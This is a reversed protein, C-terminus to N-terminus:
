SGLAGTSFSLSAGSSTAFSHTCLFNSPIATFSKAREVTGSTKGTYSSFVTWLPITPHRVMQSISRGTLPRCNRNCRCHQRFRGRRLENLLFLYLGVASYGSLETHGTVKFRNGINDYVYQSSITRPEIQAAVCPVALAFILTLALLISIIQKM